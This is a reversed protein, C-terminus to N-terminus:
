QTRTGSQPPGDRQTAVVAEPSRASQAKGNRWSPAGEKEHTGTAGFADSLNQAMSTSGDPSGRETPTHLAAHSRASYVSGGGDAVVPQPPSHTAPPPAM